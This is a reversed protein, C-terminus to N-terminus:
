KEYRIVKKVIRKIKRLLSNLKYEINIFVKHIKSYKKNTEFLKSNLFEKFEENYWGPKERNRLEAYTKTHIEPIVGLSIFHSSNMCYLCKCNNGIAKFNIPKDLNEFINQNEPESYCRKAMGTALNVTFSWDGAYCFEKRPVMFNSITYDFLPSNFEKGIKIYEEKTKATHFEVEEIRAVKVQEKRTAAIQPLANFNEMCFEKIEDLYPIYGDYLNLQILFSCGAGKIKKVNEIFSDLNNTKKLEIYHLSFAFHLRKLLEEPILKIIEDFRQSITGNTTINVFHGQKLIEYIIQPIEKPLLTEGAGCISIYSTGGLREKSFGKGIIEPSYKFKPM